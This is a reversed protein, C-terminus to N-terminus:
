DITRNESYKRSYRPNKKLKIKIHIKLHNTKKPKYNIFQYENYVCFYFYIPSLFFLLLKGSISKEATTREEKLEIEKTEPQQPQKNQSM